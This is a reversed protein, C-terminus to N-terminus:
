KPGTPAKGTMVLDTFARLLRLCESRTEPNRNTAYQQQAKELRERCLDQSRRM